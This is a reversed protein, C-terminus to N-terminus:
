HCTYCRATWKPQVNVYGNVHGAKNTIYATAGEGAATPHCIQCANGGPHRGHYYDGPPPNGHCSTCTTGTSTWVPTGQTSPQYGGHCYTNSCTATTRNWSPSTGKNAIGGWVISATDGDIHGATLATTPVVHCASCAIPSAIASGTVHITHAGVRVADANKGWTAFPPAGTANAFGGHCMTCTTQWTAGHCESCARQSTGGSLDQGHCAQCSALGRNASYAHFGADATDMWSPEHGSAEVAGNLHLGGDSAPIITGNPAISKSHCGM